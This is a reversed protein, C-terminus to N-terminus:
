RKTVEGAFAIVNDGSAEACDQNGLPRKISHSRSLHRASTNEMFHILSRSRRIACVIANTWDTVPLIGSATAVPAVDNAKGATAEGGSSKGGSVRGESVRGATSVVSDVGASDSDKSNLDESNSDESDLGTIAGVGSM